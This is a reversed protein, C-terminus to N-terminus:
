QRRSSTPANGMGNMVAVDFIVALRETMRAAEDSLGTLERMELYAAELLAGAEATTLDDASQVGREALKRVIIVGVARVVEIFGEITEMDIPKPM